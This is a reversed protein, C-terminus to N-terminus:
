GVMYVDISGVRSGVSDGDVGGGDGSGVDAGLKVKVGVDNPVLSSNVFSGVGEGVM